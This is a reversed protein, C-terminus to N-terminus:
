KPLTLLELPWTGGDVSYSYLIFLLNMPPKGPGVFQQVVIKPYCQEFEEDVVAMCLIFM